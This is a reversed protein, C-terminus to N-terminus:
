ASASNSPNMSSQPEGDHEGDAPLEADWQFRALVARLSDPEDLIIARERRTSNDNM